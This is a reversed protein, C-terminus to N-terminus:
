VPYCGGPASRSRVQSGNYFVDHSCIYHSSSDKNPATWHVQLLGWTFFWNELVNYPSHWEGQWIWEGKHNEKTRSTTGWPWRWNNPDSVYGGLGLAAYRSCTAPSGNVLCRTNLRWAVNNNATDHAVSARYQATYINGSPARWSAFTSWDRVGLYEIAAQAPAATVLSGAIAIVAILALRRWRIRKTLPDV